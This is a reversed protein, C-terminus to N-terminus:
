KVREVAAKVVDNDRLALSRTYADRAADRDGQKEAVQGLNYLVQAQFVPTEDHRLAAEFALKADDLEGELLKAYGLGSHAPAYSRDADIAVRFAHAAESYKKERTLKRGEEVRARALRQHEEAAAETLKSSAASPGWRPEPAAKFRALAAERAEGELSLKSWGATLAPGVAAFAARVGAPLPGALGLAEAEGLLGSTARGAITYDASCAYMVGITFTWSLVVDGDLEVSARVRDFTMEDRARALTVDESDGECEALAERLERAAADLVEAPLRAKLAAAVGDLEADAVLDRQHSNGDYSGHAGCMYGGFTWSYFLHAGVGGDLDVSADLGDGILPDADAVRIAREEGTELDRSVLGPIVLTENPKCATDDEEEDICTCSAVDITVDKRALQILREGDSLIPAGREALVEFADGTVRVWRSRWQDDNAYHWLIWDEGGDAASGDAAPEAPAPDAPAPDAPAPDDPAPDAPAPDAPAAETPTTTPDVTPAAGTPAAGTPTPDVAPAPPAKEGCGLTPSAALALPLAFRIAFSLARAAARPRPIVTM